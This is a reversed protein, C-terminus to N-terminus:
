VTGQVYARVCVSMRVHVCTCMRMRVRVFLL